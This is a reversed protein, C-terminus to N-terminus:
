KGLHLWVEGLHMLGKFSVRNPGWKVHEIDTAKKQHGTSDM